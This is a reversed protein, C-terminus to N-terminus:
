STSTTVKIAGTTIEGRALAGLHGRLGKSSGAECFDDVGGLVGSVSTALLTAARQRPDEILVSGALLGAALAPGEILSVEAGAHNTRLVKDHRRLQSRMVARTVAFSALGAVGASVLSRIM